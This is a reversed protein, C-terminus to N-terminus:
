LKDLISNVLAMSKEAIGLLEVDRSPERVSVEFVFHQVDRLSSDDDKSLIIRCKQADRRLELVVSNAKKWDGLARVEVGHERSVKDFVKELVRFRSDTSLGVRVTMPTSDRTSERNPPLLTWEKTTDADALRLRLSERRVCGELRVSRAPGAAIPIAPVKARSWDATNLVEGGSFIAVPSITIFGSIEQEILVTGNWSYGYPGFSWGCEVSPTTAPSRWEADEAKLAQSFGLFLRLESFGYHGQKRLERISLAAIKSEFTDMVRENIPNFFDDDGINKVPVVELAPVLSRLLLANGLKRGADEVELLQTMAAEDTTMESELPRTVMWDEGSNVLVDSRDEIALTYVCNPASTYWLITKVNDLTRTNELFAVTSETLESSSPEDHRPMLDDHQIMSFVIKGLFSKRLAEIFYSPPSGCFFVFADLDYRRNEFIESYRNLYDSHCFYLTVFSLRPNEDIATLDRALGRPTRELITQGFVRQRYSGYCFECDRECGRVVPLLPYSDAFWLRSEFGHRHLDLVARKYTPFWDVTIWDLQDYTEQTLRAFENPTHYRSWVNSLPGPELGDLISTVLSDLSVEADGGIVFDVDYRELFVKGYYAATIGGIIIQARANLRRLNEIIAKLAPLCLFWHADILIVRAALIEKESAEDIYRGLVDHSLSNIATVAGIPIVMRDLHNYPHLYLIASPPMDNGRESM